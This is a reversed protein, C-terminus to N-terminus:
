ASSPMRSGRQDRPSPSTYLLCIHSVFKKLEFSVNGPGMIGKQFAMYGPVMEPRRAMTRISNPVFGFKAEMNEVAGALEPVAAVAEDKSLPEVHAMHTEIRQNTRKQRNQNERRWVALGHLETQYASDM